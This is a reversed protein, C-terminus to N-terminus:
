FFTSLVKGRLVTGIRSSQAFFHYCNKKSCHSGQSFESIMGPCPAPPFVLRTRSLRAGKKRGTEQGRRQGRRLFRTVNKKRISRKKPPFTRPLKKGRSFSATANKVVPERFTLYRCSVSLFFLTKRPACCKSAGFFKVKEQLPIKSETTRNYNLRSM